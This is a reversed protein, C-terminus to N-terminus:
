EEVEVEWENFEIPLNENDIVLTNGVMQLNNAFFFLMLTNLKTTGM